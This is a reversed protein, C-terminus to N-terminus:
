NEVVGLLGNHLSTKYNNGSVGRIRLASQTSHLLDNNIKYWQCEAGVESHVDDDTFSPLCERLFFLNFRRRTDRITQVFDRSVNGRPPREASCHHVGQPRLPRM